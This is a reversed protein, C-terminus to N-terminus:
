YQKLYEYNKLDDYSMAKIQKENKLYIDKPIRGISELLKERSRGVDSRYEIKYTYCYSYNGRIMFKIKPAKIQKDLDRVEDQTEKADEIKAIRDIENIIKKIRM